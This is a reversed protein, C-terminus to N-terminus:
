IVLELALEDNNESTATAAPQAPVPEPQPEEVLEFDLTTTKQHSESLTRETDSLRQMLEDTEAEDKLEEIEAATAYIRCEEKHRTLQVYSMERDGLGFVYSSAVTAGQSKHTTVAYGHDINNYVDLGAANAAKALAKDEPNGVLFSVTKHPDDVGVTLVKGLAHFEIKEVTALHGNKIGLQDSNKLFILRDGETFRLKGRAATLETDLGRAALPARALDNLMRADARTKTLILKAQAARTDAAWDRALAAASAAKTSEVSIKGRQAYSLLVDRARGEVAAKAAQCGDPDMIQRRNDILEAQVGVAKQLMKFAGGAAIAQLQKEDGVLVLKAGIQECKEALTAMARSGVMGAEDIILVDGKRLLQSELEAVRSDAKDRAQGVAQAQWAKAKEISNELNLLRAITQSQIGVSEMGAAAKGALAAGRVRYGEAEWAGKAAELMTTKGAGAAGRVLALQGTDATIHKVANRQEPALEFGKAAQFKAIAADAQAATVTISHTAAMRQARTALGSELTLMERTTFHRETVRPSRKDTQGEAAVPNQMKLLERSHILEEVRQRVGDVDLKGQGAVAAAQWIKHETFVSDHETLQSLLVDDSLPDVDQAAQEQAPTQRLQEIAEATFGHEAATTQWRAFLEERPTAEKGKRTDLAAIKAAVAGSHGSEALAAEIQERRKSWEGALDDPVGAIRFSDGDREVAFGMTQMEAALEARYIAGAAMKWRLDFEVACATGDPRLGLNAVAVHTHLQPDQERSTGHQYMAALIKDIGLGNRDRSTFAREELFRLAVRTAQAQAKEIASRTEPTAVAWVTSVTKPASFTLDWGAKHTAGANKALAEGTGPHYGQLMALLQGKELDGALGLEAALAGTWQGRDQESAYYDERNKATEGEQYASYGTAQGAGIKAISLM